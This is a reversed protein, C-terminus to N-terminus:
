SLGRAARVAERAQAIVDAPTGGRDDCAMAALVALTATDDDEDRDDMAEVAAALEAELRIIQERASGLSTALDARSQEAAHLNHRDARAGERVKRLEALLLSATPERETPVEIGFVEAIANIFEASGVAISQATSRAQALMKGLGAVRENLFVGKNAGLSDLTAHAGEIEERYAREPRSTRPKKTTTM